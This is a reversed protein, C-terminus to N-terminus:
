FVAARTDGRVIVHCDCAETNRSEGINQEKVIGNSYDNLRWKISTIGHFRSTLRAATTGECPQKLKKRGAVLENARVVTM